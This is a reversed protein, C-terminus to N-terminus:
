RMEEATIKAILENMRPIVQDFPVQSDILEGRRYIKAKTGSAVV